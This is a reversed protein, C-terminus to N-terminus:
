WRESSRRLSPFGQLLLDVHVLALLLAGIGPARLATLSGYVSFFIRQGVTLSDYALDDEARNSHDLVWREQAIAFEPDPKTRSLVRQGLAGLDTQHAGKGFVMNLAASWSISRAVRAGMLERKGFGSSKPILTHTSVRSM